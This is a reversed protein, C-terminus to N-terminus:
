KVTILCTSSHSLAGSSATITVAYPAAKNAGCGSLTTATAFGGLILVFVMLMQALRSGSKRLRLAFPLLLTALGLSGLPMASSPRPQLETKAVFDAPININLTVSTSASGAAIAAPTFTYSSGFPAGEATLTIAAPATLAPSNMTVTIPITVSQGAGVIPISTSNITLTFDEIVEDLVASASAPYLSDGSYLATITHTGIALTSINFSAVDNVLTVTGLATTGDMFTVTGTPAKSATEAVTAVFSVQNQLFAPNDLSSLSVSPSGPATIVESLASSQAAPYTTDGSYSATISHTGASLTSTSLSASGGANLTITALTTTGDKFTITGTPTGDTGTVSATFTVPSNVLAPNASSGLTVAPAAAALGTGYLLIEQTVWGPGTNNLNAQLNNDIIDFNANLMGTQNPKFSFSLVCSDGNYLAANNTATSVPCANAVNQDWSFSTSNQTQYLTPNNGSTPQQFGLTDSGFNKLIVQQPSDTSLENIPTPAFTLVPPITVSLESISNPLSQGSPNATFFFNGQPDLAMSVFSTQLEPQNDPPSYILSEVSHPHAEEFLNSQIDLVYVNYNQDVAVSVPGQMATNNYSPSAITQSAFGTSTSYYSYIANAEQDAVYVHGSADVAIGLPKQLGIGIPVPLSWHMAGLYQAYYLQNTGQDTFFLNENSDLAIYGPSKLPNGLFDQTFLTQIQYGSFENVALNIQGATNTSNSSGFILNQNGDVAVQWLNVLNTPAPQPIPILKNFGKYPLMTLIANDTSDPIYVLGQNDITIGSFNVNINYPSEGVISLYGPLFNAIAGTGYGYVQAFDTAVSNNYLAIEGTRLGIASPTFQLTIICYSGASYNSQTCGAPPVFSFDQYADGQTNVIWTFSGNSVATPFYVLADYTDTDEQQVYVPVYGYYNGMALLGSPYVSGNALPAYVTLDSYSLANIVAGGGVQRVGYGPLTVEEVAETTTNSVYVKSFGDVAVGSLGSQNLITGQTYTGGSPALEILGLQSDAVYVKDAFDVAIGTPSQWGTGIATKNYTGGGAPTVQYVKKASSDTVYFVGNSQFFVDLALGVPDTFGSTVLQRTYPGQPSQSQNVEEYVKGTASDVFLLNYNVWDFAIGTPQGGSITDLLQYTYGSPSNNSTVLYIKGNFADTVFCNGFSDCAIGWPEILTQGFPFNRQIGAIQQAALNISSISCLLVIFALLARFRRRLPTESNIHRQLPGLFIMEGNEMGDSNAFKKVARFHWKSKRLPLCSIGKRILFRRIASQM